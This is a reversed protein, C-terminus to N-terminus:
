RVTVSQPANSWAGLEHVVIVTLYSNQQDMVKNELRHHGLWIGQGAILRYFLGQMHVICM